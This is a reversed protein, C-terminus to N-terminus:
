SPVGEYIVRRETPIFCQQYFAKRSLGSADRLAYLEARTALPPFTFARGEYVVRGVVGSLADQIREHQWALTETPLADPSFYRMDIVEHPDPEGVKELVRARFLLIHISGHHSFTPSTYIGVLGTLTVRLGTEEEAERIAATAPDEGKDVAGGALCWVEFDERQTLLIHGTKDDIIAVNVGIEAM